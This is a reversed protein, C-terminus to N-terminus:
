LFSHNGKQKDCVPIQTCCRVIVNANPLRVRMCTMVYVGGGISQKVYHGNSQTDATGPLRQWLRNISLQRISKLAFEYRRTTTAMTLRRTRKRSEEQEEEQIIQVEGVISRSDEVSWGGGVEEEEEEDM